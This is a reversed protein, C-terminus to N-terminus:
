KARAISITKPNPVNAVPIPAVDPEDDMGLLDALEQPVEEGLKKYLRYLCKALIHTNRRFGHSSAAANRTFSLEIKVFRLLNKVGGKSVDIGTKQKLFVAVQLHSHCEKAVQERHNRLADSCVAFGENSLQIKKPGDMTAESFSAAGAPRTTDGLVPRVRPCRSLLCAAQIVAEGV